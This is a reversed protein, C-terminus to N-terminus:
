AAEAEDGADKRPRGRKPQNAAVMEALQEIKALLEANQDKLGSIEDDRRKMEAAARTTDASELYLKASAILDRLGHIPIIQIHTDNLKSVDEVTRVGRSRLVEAQEPSVANWAALPTGATPMEQGAKWAEYQPRIIDWRQKAMSAAQDDETADMRVRKLDNVRAVCLTRDLSGMPGYSVMDVPKLKAPDAPDPKYNTWFRQVVLTPVVQSM